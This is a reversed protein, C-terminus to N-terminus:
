YKKAGGEIESPDLMAIAPRWEIRVVKEDFGMHKKIERGVETQSEQHHPRRREKGQERLGVRGKKKM